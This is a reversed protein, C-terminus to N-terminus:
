LDDPPFSWPSITNGQDQPVDNTVAEDGSTMQQNTRARIPLEPDSPQLNRFIAGAAM